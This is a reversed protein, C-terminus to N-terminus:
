SASFHVEPRPSELLHAMDAIFDDARELDKEGIVAEVGNGLLAKTPLESHLVHQYVALQIRLDTKDKISSALKADAARYGEPELFLFDPHAVLGLADDRFKPQYIIPTLDAMLEATHSEDRAEAYDDLTELVAREHEMGAHMLLQQFKDPPDGADSEHIDYWALRRCSKWAIADSANIQPM